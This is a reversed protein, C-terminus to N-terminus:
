EPLVMMQDSNREEGTTASTVVDCKVAAAVLSPHTVTIEGKPLLNSGVSHRPARKCTRSAFLHANIATVLSPIIYQQFMLDWDVKKGGTERAGTREEGEGEERGRLRNVVVRRGQPAGMRTTEEAHTYM